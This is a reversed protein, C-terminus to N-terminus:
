EQQEDSKREIYPRDRNIQLICMLFMGFLAGLSFILVAILFKKM